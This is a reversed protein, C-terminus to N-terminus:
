LQELFAAPQQAKTTTTTPCPPVPLADPTAHPTIATTTHQTNQATDRQEMTGVKSGGGGGAVVVVVVVVDYKIDVPQKIVCHYFLFDVKQSATMVNMSLFWSSQLTDERAL